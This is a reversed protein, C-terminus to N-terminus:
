KLTRNQQQYGLSHKLSLPKSGSSCACGPLMLVWIPHAFGVKLRGFDELLRYGLCLQQSLATCELPMCEKPIAVLDAARTIVLSQWTGVHSGLPVVWEGEQLGKAGPGVQSDPSNHRAFGPPVHAWKPHVITNAGHMSICSKMCPLM